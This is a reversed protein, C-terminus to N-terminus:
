AWSWAKGYMTLGFIIIEVNMYERELVRKLPREFGVKEYQTCKEKTFYLPLRLNHWEITISFSSIKLTAIFVAIPIYGGITRAHKFMSTVTTVVKAIAPVVFFNYSNLLSMSLIHWSVFSISAQKRFSFEIMMEM